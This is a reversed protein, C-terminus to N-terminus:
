VEFEEGADNDTKGVPIHTEEQVSQVPVVVSRMKELLASAFGGLAQDMTLGEFVVGQKQEGWEVRSMKAATKGYHESRLRALPVQELGSDRVERLGEYVLGDAFCRKALEWEAMREPKDELWERMVMWPMGFSRAIDAPSEGEAIRTTVMRLAGAEGYEAILDDMRTWGFRVLAGM